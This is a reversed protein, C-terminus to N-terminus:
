DAEDLDTPIAKADGVGQEALLRLASVALARVRRERASDNAVELLLEAARVEGEPDMREGIALPARTVALLAEADAEAGSGHVRKALASLALRADSTLPLAARAVNAFKPHDLGELLEMAGERRALEAIDLTDESAAAKDWWPGFQPEAQEAQTTTAPVSRSAQPADGPKDSACAALALAALLAPHPLGIRTFMTM